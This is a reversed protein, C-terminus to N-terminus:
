LCRSDRDRYWSLINYIHASYVSFVQEFMNQLNHIWSGSGPARQWHSQRQVTLATTHSLQDCTQPGTSSQGQAKLHHIAASQESESPVRSTLQTGWLPNVWPSDITLNSLTWREVTKSSSERQSRQTQISIATKDIVTFKLANNWHSRDTEWVWRVHYPPHPNGTLLCSAQGRSWM